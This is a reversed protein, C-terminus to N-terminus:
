KLWLCWNLFIIIQSQTRFLLWSFSFQKQIRLSNSNQNNKHKELKYDLYFVYHFRTGLLGDINFCLEVNIVLM